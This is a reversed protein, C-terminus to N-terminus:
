QHEPWHEPCYQNGSKVGWGEPMDGYAVFDYRAQCGTQWGGHACEVYGDLPPFNRTQGSM